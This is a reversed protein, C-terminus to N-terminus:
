SFFFDSLLTLAFFHREFFFFVRFRDHFWLRRDFSEAYEKLIRIQSVCAVGFQVDGTALALNLFDDQGRHVM